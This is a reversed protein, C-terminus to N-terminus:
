GLPSLGAFQMVLWKTGGSRFNVQVRAQPGLGEFGLVVGEGFKKHAVRQGLVFGTGNDALKATGTSPRTAYSVPRATFSVPRTITARLRVEELLEAPIDRLFRSPTNFQERGHLNRTEAWTLYLKTMARTIGVYCLRREEELRGPEDLSMKHPFLNEEVGAMFVLPFELGKASHLTMLQVAASDGEAQADGADLAAADLFQPLLPQDPVEPVFARCASILEDLNEVRAAGREGTERRHFELLGTRTLMRDALEALDFRDVDARLEEILATFGRVAGAARAPLDSVGNRLVQWLSIGGARAVERLQAVTREGIGRTPVNLVREVAADDDPNVLLRLYALANRIELREYFRHGGHIRYPIAARLLAEELVRSQANSRYLLAVEDCSGGAALWVQIREAIFRAEDQENYAAYVSIREGREGSTWLEKGMRGANHAIVANAADLITATSRYNQELRVTSAGAFHRSFDRINEIRAGRWGYISQDDDGVVTVRSSEGALLRLWAYQIANTDQFEDVLLHGFRQQYHALLEPHRLWLEHARLLLEGFDVVGGRACAAEYDRYVGLMAAVFPDSTEQIHQPRLGEDKQANIYWQAQRPPWREPDLGRAVYVRKILRLQDDADLIQFNETLGADRWHTKLLRHALGHFTGVWMGQAAMGLLDALRERMERAAKNTFTVALIGQPSVGAGRVLWAIRHVLVRTKGSGAGALVILHGADHAVAARQADNLPDLIPSLNM